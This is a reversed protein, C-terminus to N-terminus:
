NDSTEHEENQQNLSRVCDHAPGQKLLGWLPRWINQGTSKGRRDDGVTAKARRDQRLITGEGDLFKECTFVFPRGLPQKCESVWTLILAFFM